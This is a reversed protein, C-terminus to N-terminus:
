STYCGWEIEVDFDRIQHILLIACYESIRGVLIEGQEFGQEFQDPNLGIYDIISRLKDRVEEKQIGRVIVFFSPADRVDVDQRDQAPSLNSVTKKEEFIDSPPVIDGLDERQEQFEELSDEIISEERGEESNKSDEQELQEESVEEVNADLSDVEENNFLDTHSFNQLDEIHTLDEKKTAM